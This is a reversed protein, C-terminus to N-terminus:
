AAEMLLKECLYEECAAKFEQEWSEQTEADIKNGAADELDGDKDVKIEGSGIQKLRAWMADLEADGSDEIEKDVKDGGPANVLSDARKGFAQMVEQEEAGGKDIDNFIQEISPTPGQYLPNGISELFEVSDLGVELSNQPTAPIGIVNLAGAAVGELLTAWWSRSVGGNELHAFRTTTTTPPYVSVVAVVREGPQVVHYARAHDGFPCQPHESSCVAQEIADGELLLAVHTSFGANQAQCTSFIITLSDNWDNQIIIPASHALSEDGCLTGDSQQFSAAAFTPFANQRHSVLSIVPVPEHIMCATQECMSSSGNGSTPVLCPALRATCDETGAADPIYYACEVTDCLEPTGQFCQADVIQSCREIIQARASLTVSVVVVVMLRALFCPRM